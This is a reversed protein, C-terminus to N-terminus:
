TSGEMKRLLDGVDARVRGNSAVFNCCAFADIFRESVLVNDTDNLIDQHFGPEGRLERVTDVFFSVRLLLARRDNMDLHMFERNVALMGRNIPIDTLYFGSAGPGPPPIHSGPMHGAAAHNFLEVAFRFDQPRVRSKVVECIHAAAKIDAETSDSKM